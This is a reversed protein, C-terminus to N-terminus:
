PQRPRQQPPRSTGANTWGREMGVALWSLAVHAKGLMATVPGGDLEPGLAPLAIQRQGKLSRLAASDAGLAAIGAGAFLPVLGSPIFPAIIARVAALDDIRAAAHRVEDLSGLLLARGICEPAPLFSPFGEFLDLTTPARWNPSPHPVPLPPPRKAAAADSRRERLVLM